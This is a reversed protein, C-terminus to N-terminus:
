ILELKQLVQKAYVDDTKARSIMEDLLAIKNQVSANEEAQTHVQYKECLEGIAKYIRSEQAYYESQEGESFYKDTIYRKYDSVNSSHELDHRLDEVNSYYSIFGNYNYHAIFGSMNMILNYADKTLKEINATNLVQEISRLIGTENLIWKAHHKPNSCTCKTSPNIEYKM